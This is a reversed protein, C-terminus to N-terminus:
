LISCSRKEALKRIEEAQDSAQKRLEETEKEARELKERLQGFQESAKMQNELVSKEAERRAAQEDKLQQELRATAEKLKSEVMETFRKFQEENSKNMEEKFDTPKNKSNKFSDTEEKEKNDRMVKEQKQMEVFVEDTYPVGGNEVVLSNVLTMLQVVQEDRKAKDKTKNDFVVTRNNCLEVVQQLPPPCNHGLYDELTRDDDELKDGGTFAVIMYDVIKPGFLSQLSSVATAEEKTFRSGVSLVLIVAHIGNRAMKICRVIEKILFESELSSDFLGPTDIVNVIHGDETFTRQLKCSTTVGSSSIMSDFAKRGLISNGTASKGNGTRGFLVITRDGSSPATFEWEDEISSGGM